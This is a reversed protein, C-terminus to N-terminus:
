KFLVSCFKESRVTVTVEREGRGRRIRHNNRELFGLQNMKPERVKKEKVSKSKGALIGTTVSPFTKYM